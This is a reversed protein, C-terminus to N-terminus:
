QWIGSEILAVLSAVSFVVLDVIFVINLYTTLSKYIGVYKGKIEVEIDKDIYKAQNGFWLSAVLSIGALIGYISAITVWFSTTDM